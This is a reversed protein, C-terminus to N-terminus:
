RAAVLLGREHLTSLFAAVDNTAEPEPLHHEDILSEVLTAESAGDALLTWLKAGTANVALYEQRVVDLAVIEGEVLRWEVASDNIKLV